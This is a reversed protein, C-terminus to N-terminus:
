EYTLVVGLYEDTKDRLGEYASQAESIPLRHTIIEKIRVRGSDLLSIIYHRDRDRVASDVNRSHGGIVTVGKFHIDVYPDFPMVKRSCGLLLVRGKDAVSKFSADVSGEAGVADVILEAGFPALDEVWEALPKQGVDFALDIAGAERAKALRFASLEAGAVVNAGSLRFLQATLNGITGLGVVVVNEGLRAPALRPGTMAHYLISHFAAVEDDLSDPIKTVSASKVKAYTRHKSTLRVRDGESVNSVGDGVAVVEGMASYGPYYPFKAFDRQSTEFRRHTKMFVSLETGPSIASARLRVLIQGDELREDLDATEIECRGPERMVLADNKM